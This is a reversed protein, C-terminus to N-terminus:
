TNEKRKRENIDNLITQQSMPLREVFLNMRNTEKGLVVDWIGVISFKFRMFMFQGKFAVVGDDMQKKMYAEFSPRRHRSKYSQTDFDYELVPSRKLWLYTDDNEDKFFTADIPSLDIGHVSISGTYKGDRRREIHGNINYSYDNM